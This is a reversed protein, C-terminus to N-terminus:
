ELAGKVLEGPSSKIMQEFESVYDISRSKSDEPYPAYITEYMLNGKYNTVSFTVLVKRDPSVLGIYDNGTKVTIFRQKLYDSVQQTTAISRPAMVIVMSLLGSNFQYSYGVPLDSQKTVYILEDNSQTEPSYGYNEMFGRIVDANNGFQLCPDHYINITPKVTVKFSYKDYRFTTEGARHGIVTSNDVLSAILENESVWPAYQITEVTGVKMTIDSVKLNLENKDDDSCGTFSLAPVILALMLLLKKM